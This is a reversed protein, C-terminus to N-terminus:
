LSKNKRNEKKKNKGRIMVDNSPKPCLNDKYEDPVYKRVKEYLDLQKIDTLGPPVCRKFSLNKLYAKTQEINEKLINYSIWDSGISEKLKITGPNASNFQFHQYSTIKPIDKFLKGLVDKYEFFHKSNLVEARNTKSSKNVIEALHEHSFADSRRYKKKIHSFNSDPSFFTHGKIMFKVEIIQSKGTICLWALFKMLTNNKNQGVCNDANFIIHKKKKQSLSSLFHWLMSVVENSGKACESEDILYNIQQNCSEDTIGFLYYNRLSFFYFPGPQNSKQPLVLNQSYDFSFHSIIEEQARKKDEKYENRAARALYLHNSFHVSPLPREEGEQYPLAHAISNLEMRLLECTECVDTKPSNVRIHRCTDNTLTSYFTSRSFQFGKLQCLENLCLKYLMTVTYCAPLFIMEKSENKVRRRSPEGIRQSFDIVWAEILKASEFPLKNHPARGTNGHVRFIPVDQDELYQFLNRLKKEGIGLLEKFVTRCIKGFPLIRYVVKKRSHHTFIFNRNNEIHQEQIAHQLLTLTYLEYEAIQLENLRQKFLILTEINLLESNKSFCHKCSCPKLEIFKNAWEVTNKNPM